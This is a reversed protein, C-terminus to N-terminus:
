KFRHGVTGVSFFLYDKIPFHIIKGPEYDTERIIGTSLRVLGVAAGSDESKRKYSFYIYNWKGDL